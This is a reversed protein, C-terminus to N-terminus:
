LGHIGTCPILEPHDGRFVRRSAGFLQGLNEGSLFYWTTLMGSSDAQHHKVNAGQKGDFARNDVAFRQSFPHYREGAARQIVGSIDPRAQSGRYTVQELMGTKM